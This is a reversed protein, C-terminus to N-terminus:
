QEAADADAARNRQKRHLNCVTHDRCHKHGATYGSRCRGAAIKCHPNLSKIRSWCLLSISIYISAFFAQAAAAAKIQTRIIGDTKEIVPRNNIICGARTAACAPPHAQLWLALAIM